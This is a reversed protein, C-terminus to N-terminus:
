WGMRAIRRGIWEAVHVTVANGLARYRPTDAALGRRRQAHAKAGAVVIACAIRGTNEKEKKGGDQHTRCGSEFEFLVDACRGDGLSAVIFVRRRRQAVGFYQSDLVRWAANYRRGRIFGASLWRSPIQPIGETLGGLIVAFDRRDNSSLLGPVNEIVAFRPQLERIIRLFEFWLSSRSGALKERRGAVSLDQCPFGRCIIDAPAPNPRGCNRVDAFRPVPPFRAKLVESAFKDKEVQWIVKHGAREFGLDFGGIGSFLSGVMLMKLIGFDDRRVVRLSRGQLKRKAKKPGRLMPLYARNRRLLGNAPSTCYKKDYKAFPRECM